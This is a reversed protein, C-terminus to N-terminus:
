PSRWLKMLTISLLQHVVIIRRSFLIFGYVQKSRRTNLCGCEKLYFDNSFMFSLTETFYLGFFISVHFQEIHSERDHHQEDSQHSHSSSALVSASTRSFAVHPTVALLAPAVCALSTFRDVITALIGLAFQGFHATVNELWKSKM